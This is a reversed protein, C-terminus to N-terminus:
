TVSPLLDRLGQYKPFPFEKACSVQCLRPPLYHGDLYPAIYYSGLTHPAGPTLEIPYTVTYSLRSFVIETSTRKVLDM